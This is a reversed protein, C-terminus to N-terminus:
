RQKIHRQIYQWVQWFSIGSLNCRALAPAPGPLGFIATMFNQLLPLTRLSASLELQLPLQLAHRRPDHGGCLARLEQLEQVVKCCLGSSRTCVAELGPLKRRQLDRLLSDGKGALIVDSRTDM